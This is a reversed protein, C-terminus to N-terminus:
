CHSGSIQQSIAISTLYIPLILFSFIIIQLLYLYLFTLLELKNIIDIYMIKVSIAKFHYFFFFVLQAEQYINKYFKGAVSFIYEMAYRSINNVLKYYLKQYVAEFLLEISKKVKPKEDAYREPMKASFVTAMEDKSLSQVFLDLQRYIYYIRRINM